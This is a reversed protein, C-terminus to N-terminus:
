SLIAPLGIAIYARPRILTTPDPNILTQKTRALFRFKEGRIELYKLLNVTHVTCEAIRM